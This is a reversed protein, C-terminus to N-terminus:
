KFDGSAIRNVCIVLILLVFTIASFWIFIDGMGKEIENFSIALICGFIILLIFVVYVCFEFFKKM